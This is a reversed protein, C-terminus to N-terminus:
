VSADKHGSSHKGTGLADGPQWGGAALQMARSDRRARGGSAESCYPPLFPDEMPFSFYVSPIQRIIPNEWTSLISLLSISASGHSVLSPLVKQRVALHGMQYRGSSRPLSTIQPDQLTGAHSPACPTM